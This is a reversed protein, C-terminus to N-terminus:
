IAIGGFKLAASLATLILIFAVSYVLENQKLPYHQELVNLEGQYGRAELANYLDESRKYSRIFLSSALGSLSRFATRTGQYGLRANQSTYITNATELLVFIFRYILSMLEVLLKPVKFRRLVSLMEVMPTTLSLYYLCSVAGMAKAFLSISLHLGQSTVCVYRGFVPLNVIGIPTHAVNIAITLVSLLLFTMPLTLLKLYFVFSTKGKVVTVWGMAFCVLLSIVMLNAWLCVTLTGLALLVKLMPSQHRLQSIYAYKDMMIM